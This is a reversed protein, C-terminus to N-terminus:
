RSAGGHEVASGVSDLAAGREGLESTCRLAETTADYAPDALVDEIAAVLDIDPTRGDIKGLFYLMVATLSNADDGKDARESIQALAALCRLDANSEDSVAPVPTAATMAAAALIAFM